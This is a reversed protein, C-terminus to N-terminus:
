GVTVHYGSHNRVNLVRGDEWILYQGKIGLLRGSVEPTKDLQVSTVKPPYALVPYHIDMPEEAPLLYQQLDDRLANRAVSRAERLAMHDPPVLKLMARWNTRDAFLRKLDVEILGALQRYPVRALILASVAGQDIWRVPVQTARTVGVKVGGTYSLYVAHETFHHDREWDPDRGEGLHARCLEPRVICEAAEPATQLCPFCSGQGYFKKVRKGCITCSLVGTARVTFIDGIFPALELPGDNLALAYQVQGDLGALMKRLPSGDSM